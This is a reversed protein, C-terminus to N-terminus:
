NYTQQLVNAKIMGMIKTFDSHRRQEMSKKKITYTLVKLPDSIQQEITDDKM